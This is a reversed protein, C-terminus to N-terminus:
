YDRWFPMYFQTLRAKKEEQMVIPCNFKGCKIIVGFNFLENIRGTVCNIEWNLKRAIMKANCKKLIRIAEFVRQQKEGLHELVESYASLSTQAIKTKFRKPKITVIEFEELKPNFYEQVPM